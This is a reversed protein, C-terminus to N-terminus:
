LSLYVCARVRVCAHGCACVQMVACLFACLTALLFTRPRPVFFMGGVAICALVSNYGWLGEYLASRSVGFFM